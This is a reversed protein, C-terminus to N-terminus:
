KGTGGERELIEIARAIDAGAQWYRAGNVGRGNSAIDKLGHKGGFKNLFVALSGMQPAGMGLETMILDGPAENPLHNVLIRLLKLVKDAWVREGVPPKSIRESAARGMLSDIASPVSEGMLIRAARSSPQASQPSSLKRQGGAVRVPRDQWASVLEIVAEPSPCEVVVGALEVRFM